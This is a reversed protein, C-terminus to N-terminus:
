KFEELEIRRDKDLDVRDFMVFYEFYQRLYILLTRLEGPELLDNAHSKLNKTKKNGINKAAMFARIIAPKARFM